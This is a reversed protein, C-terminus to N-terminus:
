PSSPRAPSLRSGPTVTSRETILVGLLLVAGFFYHSVLVREYLANGIRSQISLVVVPPAILVLSAVLGARSRWDLSAYRSLLAAIPILLLLDYHTWSIPAVLVTLCLVLWLELRRGAEGRPPGARWCAVAV